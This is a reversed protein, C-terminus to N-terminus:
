EIGLFPIKRLVYMVLKYVKEFNSVVLVFPLMIKVLSMNFFLYLFGIGSEM